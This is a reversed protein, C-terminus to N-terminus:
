SPSISVSQALAFQKVGLCERLRKLRDGAFIKKDRM